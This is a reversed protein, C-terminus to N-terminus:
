LEFPTDSMGEFRFCEFECITSASLESESASLHALHSENECPIPAIEETLCMLTPETEEDGCAELTSPFSGHEVKELEDGGFICAMTQGDENLADVLTIANSMSAETTSPLIGNEVMKKDGEDGNPCEWMM